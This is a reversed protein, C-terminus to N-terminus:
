RPARGPAYDGSGGYGSSGGYGGAANNSQTANITQIRAETAQLRNPYTVKEGFYGAAQLQALEAGVQYRTIGSAQADANVSVCAAVIALASTSVATVLRINKM